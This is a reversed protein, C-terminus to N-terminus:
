GEDEASRARQTAPRLLLWLNVMLWLAAALYGFTEAAPAGAMAAANFFVGCLAFFVTLRRRGQDFSYGGLHFLACMTCILALLDYCYDLIVPDQTWLRFQLVLEVVYFVAPLLFLAGHAPKARYRSLATGVWCGSTM